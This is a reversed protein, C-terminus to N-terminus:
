RIENRFLETPEEQTNIHLQQEQQQRQQEIKTFEEQIIQRIRPESIIDHKLAVGLNSLSISTMSGSPVFHYQSREIYATLLILALSGTNLKDTLEQNLGFSSLLNKLIQTIAQQDIEGYGLGIKSLLDYSKSFTDYNIM